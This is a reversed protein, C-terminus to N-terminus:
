DGALDESELSLAMDKLLRSLRSRDTKSARLEAMTSEIELKLALRAEESEERLRNSHELLQRRLESDGNSYEETLHVLREEFAQSRSGVEQTLCQVAARREAQEDEFRRFLAQIEKKFYDELAQLRSRTEARVQAMESAMREESQALRRENARAHSGMLIDRIKDLNEVSAESEMGGNSQTRVSPTAPFVRDSQVTGPLGEGGLASESAEETNM